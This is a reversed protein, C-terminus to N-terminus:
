GRTAESSYARPWSALAANTASAQLTPDNVPCRPRQGRVVRVAERAAETKLTLSSEESYWAAHPTVVVADSRILADGVEPPEIELVDLGAGAIVGADLARLLAASDVVAGRATNVLYASPKMRELQPWGILHRTSRNLPVHLSVADSVALLEDFAVQRVGDGVLDACDNVDCVVVSMDLARVRRAFTAGIRGCGVVGVTLGSLRHLPKAIEYRWAGARVDRHLRPVQRLLALLLALSHDAVEEVGYDPVNVVWVGARTAAEVDINDVGVGYRVVARCRELQALVAADIPAYQNLLVDASRARALVDEATRCQASRVSIGADRLVRLEPEISDHDCDTIVVTPVSAATM